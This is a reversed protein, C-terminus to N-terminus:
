RLRVYTDDGSVPGFSIAPQFRCYLPKDSTAVEAPVDIACKCEASSLPKVSINDALTDFGEENTTMYCSKFEYGDDYVLVANMSANMMDYFNQSTKGKNEVKLDLVIFKNNDDSPKIPQSSSSTIVSYAPLEDLVIMDTVTIDWKTAEDSDSSIYSVADGINKANYANTEETVTESESVSESVSETGDTLHDNGSQETVGCGTFFVAAALVAGAASVRQIRIKRKTRM